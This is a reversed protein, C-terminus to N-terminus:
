QLNLTRLHKVFPLIDLVASSIVILELNRKTSQRFHSFALFTSDHMGCHSTFGSSGDGYM